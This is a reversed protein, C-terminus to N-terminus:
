VDSVCALFHHFFGVSVFPSVPALIKCSAPLVLLLKFSNSPYKTIGYLCSKHKANETSLDKIELNIKYVSCWFRVHPTDIHLWM